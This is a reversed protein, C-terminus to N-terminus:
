TETEELPVSHQIVEISCSGDHTVCWDQCKKAWKKQSYATGCVECLYYLKGNREIEKVM